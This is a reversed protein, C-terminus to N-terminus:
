KPGGDFSSVAAPSAVWPSAGQVFHFILLDMARRVGANFQLQM